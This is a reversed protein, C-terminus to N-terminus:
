AVFYRKDIFYTGRPQSPDGVITTVMYGDETVSLVDWKQGKTDPVGDTGVKYITNGIIKYREDGDLKNM